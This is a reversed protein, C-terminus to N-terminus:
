LQLTTRYHESVHFLFNLLPCLFSSPYALHLGTFLYLPSLNIILPFISVSLRHWVNPFPTPIVHLVPVGEAIFPLHDDEIGGHWNQNKKFFSKKSEKEKESLDKPYLLNADKLRKEIDMLEDHLWNTSDYYSPITPDKAGLLDLLVLHEISNM